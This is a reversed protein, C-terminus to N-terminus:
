KNNGEILDFISLAGFKDLYAKNAYYMSIENSKYSNASTILRNAATGINKYGGYVSYTNEHKEDTVMVHYSGFLNAIYLIYSPNLKAMVCYEKNRM